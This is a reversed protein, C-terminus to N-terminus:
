YIDEIAYSSENFQFSNGKKLGMMTAYIPAKTSIAFVEEKEIEAREGSVGVFFTMKDTVVVAGPEVVNSEKAAELTKLYTMEEQAFVLENGLAKLLELKGAKRDESQSLSENQSLIDKNMELERKKFDEILEKQKELYATHIISKVIRKKM